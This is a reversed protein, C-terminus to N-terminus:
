QNLQKYLKNIEVQAIQHQDFHKTMAKNHTYFISQGYKLSERLKSMTSLNPFLNSTIETSWVANLRILSSEVSARLNLLKDIENIYVTPDKINTPAGKVSPENMALEVLLMIIENSQSYFGDIKSYFDELSNIKQEHYSQNKWANTTKIAVVLLGITGVGALMGGIDAFTLTNTYNPIFYMTAVLLGIVFGIIILLLATASHTLLAEIKKLM